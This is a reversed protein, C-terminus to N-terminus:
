QTVNYVTSKNNVGTPSNPLCERRVTQEVASQNCLAPSDALLCWCSKLESWNACVFNDTTKTSGTSVM